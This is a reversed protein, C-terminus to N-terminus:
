SSLVAKLKEQGTRSVALQQGSHLIAHVSDKSIKELSQLANLNLLTSRHIRIFQNPDLLKELESLSQTKLISKGSYHIQIYDDQAQIYDINAVPIIFDQGRDRVVLRQLPTNIHQNLEDLNVLAQGCLKRAKELAENFRQQSFPKLLYDIAHQDFAQLAYQDYATTFIVGHNRGTSQLVEFGTLQPMQIDLFVLDITHEQLLQVAELGDEAEAIIDFEPHQSLYERVIRRALSEDDVILVSYKKSASM